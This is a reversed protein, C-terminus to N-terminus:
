YVGVLVYCIIFHILCSFATFKAPIDLRDFSILYAMNVEKIAWGIIGFTVIKVYSGVLEALEPKVNCALLIEEAYWLLPSVLSLFVVM